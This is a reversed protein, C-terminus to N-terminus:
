SKWGIQILTNYVNLFFPNSYNKRHFIKHCCCIRITTIEKREAGSLTNKPYKYLQCWLNERKEM